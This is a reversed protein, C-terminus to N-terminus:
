MRTEPVSTNTCSAAPLMRMRLLSSRFSFLPVASSNGSCGRSRRRTSTDVVHAEGVAERQAGNGNRLAQAAAQVQVGKRVRPVRAKRLCTISRTPSLSTSRSTRGCTENSVYSIEQAAAYKELADKNAVILAALFKQGDVVMVQDIYESELITDEIPVPEVNEGGPACHDGQEQRRHPDRGEVDCGWTV